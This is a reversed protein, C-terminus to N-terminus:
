CERGRSSTLWALSGAWEENPETPFVREAVILENCCYLFRNVTKSNNGLRLSQEDIVRRRQVPVIHVGFSRKDIYIPFIQGAQL